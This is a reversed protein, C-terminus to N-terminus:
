GVLQKVPTKLDHYFLFQWGSGERMWQERLQMAKKGNYDYKAAFRTKMQSLQPADDAGFFVTEDGEKIWIVRHFKSHAGTVEYSIGEAITGKEAEQLVIHEASRLFELIDTDYSTGAEFAYDLEQKQIDYIANEFALHKTYPNILGGAHDKHLHSMIVRTVDGANIGNDQLNKYLQFRGEEDTLGLGTDLLIVDESTIVVFPQIEVLLSGRGRDTIEDESLKFPVFKKSADVTFSGESLPIIKMRCFYNYHVLESM